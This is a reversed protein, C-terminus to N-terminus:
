KPRRADAEVLPHATTRGVVLVIAGIIPVAVMVGLEGNFWFAVAMGVALAVMASGGIVLAASRTAHLCLVRRGVLVTLLVGWEDRDNDVTVAM